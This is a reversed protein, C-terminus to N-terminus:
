TRRHHGVGRAAVLLVDLVEEGGEPAPEGHHGHGGVRPAGRDLPVALDDPELRRAGELLAALALADDVPQVVVDLPVRHVVGDGDLQEVDVELEQEAHEVLVVVEPALQPQEGEGM